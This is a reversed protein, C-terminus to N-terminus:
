AVCMTTCHVLKIIIDARGIIELIVVGVGGLDLGFGGLIDDCEIKQGLFVM